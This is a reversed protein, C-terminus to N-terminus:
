LRRVSIQPRKEPQLGILTEEDVDEEEEEDEELSPNASRLAPTRPGPHLQLANKKHATTATPNKKIGAKMM